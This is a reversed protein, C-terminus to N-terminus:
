NFLSPDARGVYHLKIAGEMAVDAEEDFYNCADLDM